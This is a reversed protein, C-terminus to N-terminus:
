IYFNNVQLFKKAKQKYDNIMTTNQVEKPYAWTGHMINGELVYCTPDSDDSDCHLVLDWGISFVMLYKSMHLKVLKEMVPNIYIMQHKFNDCVFNDCSNIEVATPDSNSAIKTKSSPSSVEKLRFPGNFLTVFRFHRVKKTECNNLYQQILTGNPSKLAEEGTVKKINFGLAGHIPKQIYTAESYVSNHIKRVNETTSIYLIPHPIENEKFVEVWYLKSSMLESLEPLFVLMYAGYSGGETFESYFGSHKDFILKFHRNQDATLWIRDM